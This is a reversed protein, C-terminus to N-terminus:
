QRLLHSIVTTSETAATRSSSSLPRRAPSWRTAWQILLTPAECAVVADGVHAGNRHARLVDVCGLRALLQQVHGRAIALGIREYAVRRIRAAATTGPYHCLQSDRRICYRWSCAHPVVRMSPCRVSVDLQAPGDSLGHRDDRWGHHAARALQQLGKRLSPEPLRQPVPPLVRCPLLPVPGLGDRLDDAQAAHRARQWGGASSWSLWRPHPRPDARACALSPAFLPNAPLLARVEVLKFLRNNAEEIIPFYKSKVGGPLGIVSRYEPGADQPDVRDYITRGPLPFAKFLSFYLKAFDPLASPPLRLAVAEAHGLKGYDGVQQFNHYCVKGGSGVRTGGAYGCRSSLALDPRNLAKRELEVFEHQAHWFCGCGFYIPLMAGDAAAADAAAAVQADALASTPSWLALAPIALAGGALQRRSLAQRQGAPQPRMLAGAQQALVLVLGAKM